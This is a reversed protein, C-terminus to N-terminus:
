WRMRQRKFVFIELVATWVPMTAVLVAAIGSPLSKEAWFLGSYAALFMLAGLVWLSRWEKRSPNPTGRARSWAYLVAGAITFRVGAAFLPPVSEVAVRIALYTSGWVFYIAFFALAM